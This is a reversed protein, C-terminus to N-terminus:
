AINASIHFKNKREGFFRPNQGKAFLADERFFLPPFGHIKVCVSSHRSFIFFIESKKTFGMSKKKATHYFSSFKLLLKKHGSM